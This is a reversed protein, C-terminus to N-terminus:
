VNTTRTGASLVGRKRHAPPSQQGTQARLQCSKRQAYGCPTTIVQRFTCVSPLGMLDGGAQAAQEQRGANRRRGNRRGGRAVSKAAWGLVDPAFQREIQDRATEGGVLRVHMGLAITSLCESRRWRCDGVARVLRCRTTRVSRVISVGLVAKERAQALTVVGVRGLRTRERQKGQILYFTKAGNPTVRLCFGPVASDWVTKTAKRVVIDTIVAM